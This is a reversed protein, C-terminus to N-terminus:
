LQNLDTKKLPFICKTYQFYNLFSVAKYSLKQQTYQPIVLTTMLHICFSIPCEKGLQGLKYVVGCLCM